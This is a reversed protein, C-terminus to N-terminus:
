GCMLVLSFDMAFDVLCGPEATGFDLETLGVAISRHGFGFGPTQLPGAQGTGIFVVKIGLGFIRCFWVL